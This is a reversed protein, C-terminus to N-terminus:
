RVGACLSWLGAQAAQADVARYGRWALGCAIAVVLAIAVRAIHPKM